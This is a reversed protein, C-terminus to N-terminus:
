YTFNDVYVPFNSGNKHEKKAQKNTQNPIKKGLMFLM